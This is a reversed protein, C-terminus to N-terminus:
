LNYIKLASQLINFLANVLTKAM